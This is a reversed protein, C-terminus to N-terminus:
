LFPNGFRPLIERIGKKEGERIARKCLKLENKQRERKGKAIALLQTQKFTYFNFNV